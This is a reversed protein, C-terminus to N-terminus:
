YLWACSLCVYEKEDKDIQATQGDDGPYDVKTVGYQKAFEDIHKSMSPAMSKYKEFDIQM